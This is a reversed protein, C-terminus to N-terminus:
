GSLVRHFHEKWRQLRLFWRYGVYSAVWLAWVRGQMVMGPMIRVSKRLGARTAGMAGRLCMQEAFCWTRHAVQHIAPRRLVHLEPRVKKIQEFVDEVLWIEDSGNRATTMVVSTDSEPHQRYKALPTALYAVESRLAIRLWMHWDVGWVIRETFPGVEEYMARRVMVGAPNVICGELLLRRVLVEGPQIRDEGYLRQLRLMRDERDIHEVACHLLGVGEREDLVGVGRQLFTPGLLDDAHLLVVYAGRAQELCRNWARGVGGRKDFRLYRAGRDKYRACLQETEDTSADDCIILEYDHFEQELVSEIAASLYRASNYTPICVSVRPAMM